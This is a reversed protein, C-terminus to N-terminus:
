AAEREAPNYKWRMPKAVGNYAMICHQLHEELADASKYRRGRLYRRSFRSFFNEALNLWSAHTPTYLVNFRQGEASALFKKMDKSRHTTGNDWVLHIVRMAPFLWLLQRLMEITQPTKYKKPGFVEAAVLAGTDPRIVAVLSRSGHRVYNHEVRGVKRPAPPSRGGSPTGKPFGLAQIGTKEDYCLLMEDPPLKSMYAACIADRRVTYDSGDKRTFLYYQERHPQVEALALVRQVSSRSMVAGQKAAEEVIIDQTMQGELRKLDEPRQCALTIVVAQQQVTITAPRGSRIGDNLTSMVPAATFRGVWKRVTPASCTLAKCTQALSWGDYVRHQTAHGAAHSLARRQVDAPVLTQIAGGAAPGNPTPARRNLSRRHLVASGM